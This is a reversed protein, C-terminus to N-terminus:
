SLDLFLTKQELEQAPARVFNMLFIAKTKGSYSPYIDLIIKKNDMKLFNLTNKLMKLTIADFDISM